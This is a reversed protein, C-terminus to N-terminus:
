GAHLRLLYCGHTGGISIPIDVDILANAPVFESATRSRRAQRRARVERKARRGDSLGKRRPVAGIACGNQHRRVRRVGLREM